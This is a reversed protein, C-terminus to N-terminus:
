RRMRAVGTFVFFPAWRVDKKARRSFFHRTSPVTMVIDRSQTRRKVCAGSSVDTWKLTLRISYPKSQHPMNADFAEALAHLLRRPAPKSAHRHAKLGARRSFGAILERTGTASV